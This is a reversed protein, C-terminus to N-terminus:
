QALRPSRPMLEKRTLRTGRLGKVSQCAGDFIRFLNGGIQVLVRQCFDQEYKLRYLDALM